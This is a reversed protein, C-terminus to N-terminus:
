LYRTDNTLKFLKMNVVKLKKTINHKAFATKADVFDNLLDLRKFRLQEFTQTKSEM